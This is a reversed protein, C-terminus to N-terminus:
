PLDMPLLYGSGFFIGAAIRGIPPEHGQHRGIM